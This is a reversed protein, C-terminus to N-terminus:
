SGLLGRRYTGGRRTAELVGAKTVNAIQPMMRQVESRVTGVVGASLNITQNVVVGDGGGMMNKTNHGNVIRGGSNPVFMEPGREGVLYPSGGNVSGGGAKGSGFINSTPLPTYGEIGGFVANLIKNVVEMQLFTTIIQGVVDKAFNKFSDLASEGEMLSNVFDSTFAQAAAAIAPAMVEGFTESVEELETKLGELHTRIKETEEESFGGIGDATITDLQAFLANIAELPTITDELISKMSDIADIQEDTLQATKISVPPKDPLSNLADLLNKLELQMVTIEDDIGERHASTLMSQVFNGGEYRMREAIKKDIEDTLADLQRNLHHKAEEFDENNILDSIFSPIPKGTRRENLFQFLSNVMATANDAADKLIRDIGSQYLEDGVQKFAIALNSTKTSLLDMQAAMLGGFREQLGENLADMVKAAGAASKGVKAVEDRTIGLKENLITYVPIGRDSLQELEELGLGGQAARQTIRVMAQFSELPQLTASAADGFITLMDTSPEIGNAKLQIFANTVDELQFPTTQAFKNIEGFAREAGEPGGYLTGLSIRLREFENGINAIGKVAAGAGLGALIPGLRKLASSLGATSTKSRDLDGRLQKLKKNLDRTEARIEVILEDVKTAM